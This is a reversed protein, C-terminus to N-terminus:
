MADQRLLSAKKGERKAQDIDAPSIGLRNFVAEVRSLESAIEEPGFGCLSLLEIM